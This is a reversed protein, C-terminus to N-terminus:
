EVEETRLDILYSMGESDVAITATSKVSGDYDSASYIRVDKGNLDELSFTKLSSKDFVPVDQAKHEAQTREDLLVIDDTLMETLDALGNVRDITEDQYSDITKVKAKTEEYDEAWTRIDKANSDVKESLENFNRQIREALDNVEESVKQIAYNSDVEQTASERKLQAVEKALNAILAHADKPAEVATAEAEDKVPVLVFYAIHDIACVTDGKGSVYEEVDVYQVGVDTVTTVIGDSKGNIIYMVKEGVEAIRDVLEYRKCDSLRIINTPSLVRFVDFVSLDFTKDSDLVDYAIFESYENIHDIKAIVDEPEDLYKSIYVFDGVDAERDVEVYERAIGGLSEDAIYHPRKVEEHEVTGGLETYEGDVEIGFSYKDLGKTAM